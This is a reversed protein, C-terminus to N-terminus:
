ATAQRRAKRGELTGVSRLPEGVSAITPETPLVIEFHTRNTGCSALLEGGHREVIMRCIALGIGMGNNKSTVCVDFIQGLKEGPIGPGSDDVSLAVKSAGRKETRLSLFRM